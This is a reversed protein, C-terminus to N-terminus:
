LRGIGREWALALYKRFEEDVDAPGTLRFRHIAPLEGRTFRSSAPPEELILHGGLHDRRVWVAAFTMRRCFGIRSKVPHITLDGFSQLSSVLARYAEAVAPTARRLHDDESYRRCSHTQNRAAFRHGCDPCTWM